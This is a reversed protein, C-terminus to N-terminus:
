LRYLAAQILYYSFDDNWGAVAVPKYKSLASVLDCGGDFDLEDARQRSRGLYNCFAVADFDKPVDKFFYWEDYSDTYLFSNINEEDIVPSVARQNIISWGLELEEQSLGMKKSGLVGSDFSTNVARTGLILPKIEHLVDKLWADEDEVWHYNNLIGNRRM